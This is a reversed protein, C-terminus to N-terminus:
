WWLGMCYMDELLNWVIAICRSRVFGLLYTTSHGPVDHAAVFQEHMLLMCCASIMVVYLWYEQM